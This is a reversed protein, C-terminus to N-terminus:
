EKEIILHVQSIRTETAEKIIFKFPKEQIIDNIDPISEHIKIILGGLTEYDDSEPLNLNYKENLYDIEHRASLLFENQSLQRETLEENDYEDEIEGFIEEIIDEMTVVGSTGGFEDVVVAISKHEKIFMSLVNNALMTEPVIPISRVISKINEPNTFIDSSHVFGVIDDVTQKYILIKSHGSSIFVNKLAEITDNEELATIETRPVMCERLKIKRFDIANQLMQIEQKVEGEDKGAETTFEKLYHDLDVPSFTYSVNSIQLRFIKKLIFESIGIIL